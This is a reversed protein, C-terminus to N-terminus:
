LLIGDRLRYGKARENVILPRPDILAVKQNISQIHVALNSDSRMQGPYCLRTLDKASTIRPARYFLCRLILNERETLALAEGMYVAEAATNSVTLAHTSLPGTDWGCATVCFDLLAAFLEEDSGDRLLHSLPMDPVAKACVLAAIPVDPYVARIQRCLKEGRKLQRVCDILVGGTARTRCYRLGQEFPVLFAFIGRQNLRVAQDKWWATRESIIVLM